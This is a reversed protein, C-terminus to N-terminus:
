KVIGLTALAVAAIGVVMFVVGGARFAINLRPSGGTASSGTRRRAAELMMDPYRVFVYGFAVAFLGWILIFVQPGTM